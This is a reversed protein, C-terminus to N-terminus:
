REHAESVVHHIELCTNRRKTIEAIDEMANYNDSPIIHRAHSRALSSTADGFTQTCVRLCIYQQIHVFWFHVVFYVKLRRSSVHLVHLNSSDM